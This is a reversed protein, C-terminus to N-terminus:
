IINCIEQTASTDNEIAVSQRREKIYVHVIVTKQLGRVGDHYLKEILTNLDVTDFTKKLDDFVGAVYKSDDLQAQISKMITMLM